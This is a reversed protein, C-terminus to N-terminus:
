ALHRLIEIDKEADELIFRTLSTKDESTDSKKEQSCLIKSHYYVNKANLCTYFTYQTCDLHLHNVTKQKLLYPMEKEIHTNPSYIWVTINKKPPPQNKSVPNRQIARVTRSSV